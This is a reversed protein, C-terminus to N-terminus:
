NNKEKQEYLQVIKSVESKLEGRTKSDSALLYNGAMQFGLFSGCDYYKGDFICTSVKGEKAMTSIVDTICFEGNPRPKSALIRDYIEPTFIYRAFGMINSPETGKEPKEIIDKMKFGKGGAVSEGIIMSSYKYIQDRSVEKGYVVSDGTQEYVYAVEGSVSKGDPYSCFDDGNIVLVPEGNAWEKAALVAISSGRVEAGGNTKLFIESGIEQNMYTISDFKTMLDNYEKLYSLKGDSEVKNLYDQPPDIFCKFSEEKLKNGVILIDKIGASALDELHYMLIPKGLIPFLEKAVVLTGPLFRTGLGGALVVAKKVKRKLEIQEM